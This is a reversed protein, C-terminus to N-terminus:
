QQQRQQHSNEASTPQQDNKTEKSFKETTKKVTPMLVCNAIHM